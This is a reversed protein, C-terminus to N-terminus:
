LGFAARLKAKEEAEVSESTPANGSRVTPQGNLMENKTAAVKGEIFTKQATFYDEGIGEPLTKAMIDATASDYGIEMLKAKYTSMRENTKYALLEAETKAQREAAEAAAKEQESLTAQWQKKYKSADACADSCSTKLKANEEKLRAIEAQLAATDPTQQTTKTETKKNEEMTNRRAIVSRQTM